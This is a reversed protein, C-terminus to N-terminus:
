PAATRWMASDEHSTCGNDAGAPAALVVESRARHAAASYWWRRTTSSAGVPCVTSTAIRSPVPSSLWVMALASLQARDFGAAAHEGLPQGVM